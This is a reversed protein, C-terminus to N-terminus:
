AALKGLTPDLLMPAAYVVGAAMLTNVVAQRSLGLAHHEKGLKDAVEYVDLYGHQEAATRALAHVAQLFRNYQM